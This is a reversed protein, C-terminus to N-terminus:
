NFNFSLWPVSLATLLLSPNIEISCVSLRETHGSFWFKCVVTIFVGSLEPQCSNHAALKPSLALIFYMKALTVSSNSFWILVVGIKFCWSGRLQFLPCWDQLLGQLWTTAGPLWMLCRQVSLLYPCVALDDSCTCLYGFTCVSTWVRAGPQACLATVDFFIIFYSKGSKSYLALINNRTRLLKKFDKHDSIKEILPSVKLSYM